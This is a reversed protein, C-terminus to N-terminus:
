RLVSLAVNSQMVKVRDFSAYLILLSGRVSYVLKYAIGIREVISQFTQVWLRDDQKTKRKQVNGQATM